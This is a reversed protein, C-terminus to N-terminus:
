TDFHLFSAQGFRVLHDEQNKFYERDEKYSPQHYPRFRDEIEERVEGDIYTKSDHMVGVIKSARIGSIYKHIDSSYDYSTNEVNANLILTPITNTSTTLWENHYKNCQELYDVQINKEGPRNRKEIRKMCVDSSAKFYIICSPEVEKAFEDFWRTYISYEDLEIKNTDFLMKAFVHADTILCRETVILKVKPNKLAQRLKHLRSIYAMMQFRFSFQKLDRYLNTLIPVGNEDKISEWESTPEDVFIVSDHNNKNVKLFYEELQMKGLTKGSGINGEISAIIIPTSSSLLSSSSSSGM